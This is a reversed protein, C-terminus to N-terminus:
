GRRNAHASTSVSACRFARQGPLSHQCFEVRSSIKASNIAALIDGRKRSVIEVCTRKETEARQLIPSFDSYNCRTQASTPSLSHSAVDGTLFIREGM